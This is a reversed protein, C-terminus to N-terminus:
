FVTRKFFSRDILRRGALGAHRRDEGRPYGSGARWAGPAAGKPVVAGLHGARLRLRVAAAQTAGGLGGPTRLDWREPQSERLMGPRPVLM